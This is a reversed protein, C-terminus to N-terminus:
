PWLHVVCTMGYAVYNLIIILDHDFAQAATFSQMHCLTSEQLNLIVEYNLGQLEPHQGIVQGMRHGAVLDQLERPPYQGIVQGMRHGALLGQLERLPHM